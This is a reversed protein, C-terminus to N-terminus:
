HGPTDQDRHSMDDLGDSIAGTLDDAPVAIREEDTGDRRDDADPHATAPEPTSAGGAYGYENPRDSGAMAAIGGDPRCGGGEVDTYGGDSARM